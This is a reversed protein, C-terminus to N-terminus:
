RARPAEKLIWSGNFALSKRSEWTRSGNPWGVFVEDRACDENLVYLTRSAARDRASRAACAASLHAMARDESPTDRPISWHLGAFSPDTFVDTM